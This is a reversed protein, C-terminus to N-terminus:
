PQRSAGAAKEQFASLLDVLPQGATGLPELARAACLMLNSAELSANEPGIFSVLTPKCDDKGVDKGADCETAFRDLLDDYIQFALGFKVAFERVGAVWSEEVGAIREYGALALDREVGQLLHLRYAEAVLPELTM